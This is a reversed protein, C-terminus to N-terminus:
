SYAQLTYKLSEVRMFVKCDIRRGVTGELLKDTEATDASLFPPIEQVLSLIFCDDLSWLFCSLRLGVETCAALCFMHSASLRSEGQSGEAERRMYFGGGGVEERGKVVLLAVAASAASDTFILVMAIALVECVM